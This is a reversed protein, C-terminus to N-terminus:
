QQRHENGDAADSINRQTSVPALIAQAVGDRGPSLSSASDRGTLAQLSHGMLAQLPGRSLLLALCAIAAAIAANGTFGVRATAAGGIVSGISIGMFLATNNLALVFARRQPFDRALAAQQAPFFLQAFASTVLLMANAIWGNGIDAGLVGLCVALGALSVLKTARTGFRDASIGGLLTGALAGAGYCAIARAIQSATLGEGTLWAGLYTYVGYLATAWLVTPLLRMAMLGPAVPAAAAATMAPPGRPWVLRNVVILGLSLLALLLFPMRWGFHSAVITGAPAGFSLALLLGSVAIAMWTARRAPPAAENVGAYILPAVGSAALGAAVRAVLLWPLGPARATLLNAAAFGLLCASLTGRRGIRDALLGFLPACLLYALSFVTVSLGAAANTTGFDAAIRPLLPSVVFLDTGVVFVTLWGCALRAVPTL